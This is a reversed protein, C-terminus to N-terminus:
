IFFFFFGFVTGNLSEKLSIKFFCFNLLFRGLPLGYGGGLDDIKFNGGLTKKKALTKSRFFLFYFHLPNESSFQFFKKLILGKKWM